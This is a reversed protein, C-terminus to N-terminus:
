FIFPDFGIFFGVGAEGRGSDPFYAVYPGVGLSLSFPTETIPNPTEVLCDADRGLYTPCDRYREDLGVNELEQRREDGIDRWQRCDELFLHEDLECSHNPEDGCQARHDIARSSERHMCDHDDTRYDPEYAVDDGRHACQLAGSWLRSEVNNDGKYQYVYVPRCRSDEARNGIFMISGYFGHEISEDEYREGKYGASLRFGVSWDGNRISTLLSDFRAGANWGLIHNGREYKDSYIYSAGGEVGVAYDGIGGDDYGRGMVGLNANLMYELDNQGARGQPLGAGWGFILSNSVDLTLGFAGM